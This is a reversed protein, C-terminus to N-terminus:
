LVDVSTVREVSMVEEGREVLKAVKKLADAVNFAVVHWRACYDVSEENTNHAVIKYLQKTKTM